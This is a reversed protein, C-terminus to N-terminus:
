ALAQSRLFGLHQGWERQSFPIPATKLWADVRGLNTQSHRGTPVLWPCASKPPRATTANASYYRYLAARAYSTDDGKWERKSLLDEARTMEDKATNFLERADSDLLAWLAKKPNYPNNGM